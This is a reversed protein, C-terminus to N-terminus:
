SICTLRLSMTPNFIFLYFFVYWALMLRQLFHSAINIDSLTSKVAFFLPEIWWSSMAIRFAYAGFFLALLQFCAFHGGTPPQNSQPVTM